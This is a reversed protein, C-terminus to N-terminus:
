RADSAGFDVTRTTIAAVGAGSGVASYNLTTARAASGVRRCGSDRRAARRVHQGRRHHHHRQAQRPAAGATGAAVVALLAAGRRRATIRVLKGNKPM